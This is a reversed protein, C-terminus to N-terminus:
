FGQFIASLNDGEAVFRKGDFVYYLRDNLGRFVRYKGEDPMREVEIHTESYPDSPTFYPNPILLVM